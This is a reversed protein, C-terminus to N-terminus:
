VGVGFGGGTDYRTLDYKSIVSILTSAYNPATAYGCAHLAEAYAEPTRADMCRQYHPTTLLEAHADFAAELSRYSAFWEEKPVYKQGDWERSWVLRAEGSAIQFKTAQIGFPNNVGSMHKGYGSEVAWQALDISAFPGKPYFRRHSSQAAAIVDAPFPDSM